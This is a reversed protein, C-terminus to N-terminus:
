EEAQEVLAAINVLHGIGGRKVRQRPTLHNRAIDPEIRGRRAEMDPAQHLDHHQPPQLLRPVLRDHQHAPPRGLDAIRRALVFRALHQRRVVDRRIDGRDPPHELPEQGKAVPRAVRHQDVIVFPQALEFIDREQALDAPM